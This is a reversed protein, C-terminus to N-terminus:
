ESTPLRVLPDFSPLGKKIARDIKGRLRGHVASEIQKDIRSIMSEMRGREMTILKECENGWRARGALAERSFIEMRPLDGFLRVIRGRTEAPKQSHRQRQSLIISSVDHSKVELKGKLGLFCLEANAKTYFSFGGFPTGDKNLKIWTFACAAYRFGWAKMVKFGDELRPM